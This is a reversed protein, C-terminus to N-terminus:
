IRFAETVEAKVNAPGGQHHVIKIGPKQGSLFDLYGSKILPDIGGALFFGDPDTTKLHRMVEDPQVAVIVKFGMETLISEIKELVYGHKGTVLMTQRHQETMKLHEM